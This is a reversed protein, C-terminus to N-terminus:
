ENKNEQLTTIKTERLKAAVLTRNILAWLKVQDPQQLEKQIYQHVM